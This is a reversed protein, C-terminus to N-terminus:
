YERHFYPTIGYKEMVYAVWYLREKLNTSNPEKSM